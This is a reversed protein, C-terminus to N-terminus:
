LDSVGLRAEGCADGPVLDWRRSARYTVLALAGGGVTSFSGARSVLQGFVGACSSSMSWILRGGMDDGPGIM